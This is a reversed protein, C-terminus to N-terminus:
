NLSAATAFDDIQGETATWDDETECDVSCLNSPDFDNFTAVGDFIRRYDRHSLALRYDGFRTGV